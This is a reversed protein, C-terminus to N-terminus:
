KEAEMERLLRVFGSCEWDGDMSADLCHITYAGGKLMGTITGPTLTICDALAIRSGRKHLGPDFSAYVSEPKKRSYVWGIVALNAKIIEKLLLCLLKVIGPLKRLFARDKERSWGLLYRCCLCCLEAIAGGFLLIELTIHGNFILWLGLLLLFLM